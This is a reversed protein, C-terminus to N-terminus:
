ATKHLYAVYKPDALFSHPDERKLLFRFQDAQRANFYELVRWLDLTAPRKRTERNDPFRLDDSFLWGGTALKHLCFFHDWAVEPFCHGADLWILDFDPWKERGLFLTNMRLPVVNLRQLDNAAGRDGDPHMQRYIPDSDPLEVTRITAEPFLESLFLTTRGGATGLELIHRPAFGSIKLAAFALRHISSSLAKPPLALDDSIRQNLVEAMGRDVGLEEFFSDNHRAALRGAEQAPMHARRAALLLAAYLRAAGPIRKLTARATGVWSNM